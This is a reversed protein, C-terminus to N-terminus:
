EETELPVSEITEEEEPNKKKKRKFLKSFFSEKKKPKESDETESNSEESTEEEKTITATDSTEKKDLIPSKEIQDTDSKLNDEKKTLEIDKESISDKEKKKFLKTFFNEKKTKASDKEKELLLGHHKLYEKRYKRGKEPQELTKKNRKPYEKYTRNEKKKFLNRFFNGTAIGAVKLGHGTNQGINKFFLGVSKGASSFGKGIGKSSRKFFNPKEEFKPPVLEGKENRQLTVYKDVHNDIRWTFGTAFGITTGFETFGTYVSGDIQLNTNFLYATGIEAEAQISPKIQLRGEAFVAWRKNVVYNSSMIGLFRNEAFFTREYIANSNVTWNENLEHQLLLAIQFSSLAHTTYPNYANNIPSEAPSIDFNGSVSVAVSPIMRNWDFAHRKKWSRMKALKDEYTDDVNHKYILFKSGLSLGYGFYGIDDYKYNTVSNFDQFTTASFELKETILGFRFRQEFRRNKFSNNIKQDKFFNSRFGGEIQLVNLGVSFPSESLGPRNSNIIDTYQANIKFVGILFFLLWSKKFM